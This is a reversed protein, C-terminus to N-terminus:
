SESCRTNPGVSAASSQLSSERYSLGRVVLLRACVSCRRLVGGRHCLHEILPLDIHLSRQMARLTWLGDAGAVSFMRPGLRGQLCPAECLKQRAASEVHFVAQRCTRATTTRSPHM